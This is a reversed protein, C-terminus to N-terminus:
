DLLGIAQLYLSRLHEQKSRAAETLKQLKLVENFAKMDFGSAKAEAKLERIDDAIAKREAELHEVRKFFSVLQDGVIGTNSGDTM